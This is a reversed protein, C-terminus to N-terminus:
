QSVANDCIHTEYNFSGGSDLCSDIALFESLPQWTLFPAVAILAIATIRKAKRAMREM